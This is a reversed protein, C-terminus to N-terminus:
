ERRHRHHHHELPEEDSLGTEVYYTNNPYAAAKEGEDFFEESPTSTPLPRDEERRSNNLTADMLQTRKLASRTTIMIMGFIAMILSCSFVWFVADPLFSCMGDYVTSTYLPVIANCSVFELTASLEQLLSAILGDVHNILTTFSSYDRGCLLSLQGILATDNLYSGVQDIQARGNTVLPFIDRLVQFPYVEATCQSVYHNAIQYLTVQAPTVTSNWGASLLLNRISGDPSNDVPRGGPL